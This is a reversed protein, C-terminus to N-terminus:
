KIRVTSELTNLIEQAFKKPHEKILLHTSNEFPVSRYPSTIHSRYWKELNPSFLSGPVAYFYTLPVNIKGVTNRYDMQKMDNALSVITKKDCRKLIKRLPFNMLIKPLRGLKPYAAVSFARFVEFFTEETTETDEQDTYIGQYLGLNWGSNNAQRPTMDCLIIQRLASCGYRATYNMIVGAGMSWGLLTVNQLELGCILENLDDALTDLTVNDRNADKSNGHGRHDYTICRAYPAVKPVVHKFVDHSSTWGHLMLVTDAGSGSEEYYLQEGNKLTFYSM